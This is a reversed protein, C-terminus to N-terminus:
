LLPIVVEVQAVFLELEAVVLVEQNAVNTIKLLHAEVVTLTIVVEEVVQQLLLQFLQIAEKLRKLQILHLELVVLV